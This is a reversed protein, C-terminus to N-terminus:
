IKMSHEQSKALKLLALLFIDFVKPHKKLSNALSQGNSVDHVIVKLIKKFSESKTQATLTDLAEIITIGSKLMVALHKTFLQKDLFSVRNSFPLTM